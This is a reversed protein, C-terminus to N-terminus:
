DKWEIWDFLGDKGDPEYALVRFSKEAVKGWWDDLYFTTDTAIRRLYIVFDFMSENNRDSSDNSSYEWSYDEEADFFRGRVAQFVATTQRDATPREQRRLRYDILYFIPANARQLAIRYFASTIHLTDRKRPWHADTEFAFHEVCSLSSREGPLVCDIDLLDRTPVFTFRRTEGHNDTSIGTSATPFGGTRRSQEGASSLGADGGPANQHRNLEKIMQNMVHRSDRCTVWLSSDEESTSKM